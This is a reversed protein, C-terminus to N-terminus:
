KSRPNKKKAFTFTIVIFRLMALNEDPKPQWHSYKNVKVKMKM